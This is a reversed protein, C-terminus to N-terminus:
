QNLASTFRNMVQQQEDDTVQHSTGSEDLMDSIASMAEMLKRSDGDWRSMLNQFGAGAAGQWAGALMDVVGRLKGLEGDVEQRVSRVDAAAAHLTAYDVSISAVHKVENRINRM